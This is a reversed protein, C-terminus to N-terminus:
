LQLFLGASGLHSQMRSDESFPQWCHPGFVIKLFSSYSMGPLVGGVLMFFAKCVLGSEYVSWAPGLVAWFPGRLAAVHAPSKIHKGLLTFAGNADSRAKVQRDLGTSAEGIHGAFSASNRPLLLMMALAFMRLRRSAACLSMNFSGKTLHGGVWRAPFFLTSIRAQATLHAHTHM